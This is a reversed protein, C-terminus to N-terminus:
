SQVLLQFEAMQGFPPCTYTVDAVSQPDIFTTTDNWLLMDTTNDSKLGIVGFIRDDETTDFLQVLDSFPIVFVQFVMNGTRGQVAAELWARKNMSWRFGRELADQISINSNGPPYPTSNPDVGGFTYDLTFVNDYNIKSDADTLNDVGVFQLTGDFVAPYLHLSTVDSNSNWVDFADRPIVVSYGQNLLNWATLANNRATTWNHIATSIAKPDEM